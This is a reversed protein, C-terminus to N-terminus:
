PGNRALELVQQFTTVDASVRQCAPLWLILLLALLRVM